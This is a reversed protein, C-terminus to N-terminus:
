RKRKLKGLKKLKEFYSDWLSKKEYEQNTPNTADNYLFVRTIRGQKDRHIMSEDDVLSLLFKESIGQYSTSNPLEVTHAPYHEDNIGLPVYERNFATWKGEETQQIGYPFNIRFFNSLSM